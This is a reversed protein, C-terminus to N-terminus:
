VGLLWGSLAFGLALAAAWLITEILRMVGSITDGIFIDKVANTFALGPILLMIDGIIIKDGHLAPLARCALSILSGVCFAALFNFLVKNKCILPLYMQLLCLALALIRKGNRM